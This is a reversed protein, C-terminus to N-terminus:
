PNPRVSITVRRNRARDEPSSGPAIQEADGKGEVSLRSPASLKPAMVQAVARARAASLEANSAHRTGAPSSNLM